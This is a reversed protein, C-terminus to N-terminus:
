WRCAERAEAEKRTRLVEQEELAQLCDYALALLDPHDAFHVFVFEIDRSELDGRFHLLLATCALIRLFLSEENRATCRVLVVGLDHPKERLAEVFARNRIEPIPSQLAIMLVASDDRHSM